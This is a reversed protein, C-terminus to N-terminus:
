AGQPSEQVSSLQAGRECDERDECEEIGLTRELFEQCSDTLLDLFDKLENIEEDSKDKVMHYFPYTFSGKEFVREGKEGELPPIMIDYDVILTLVRIIQKISIQRIAIRAGDPYERPM